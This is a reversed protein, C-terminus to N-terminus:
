NWWKKFSPHGLQQHWTMLTAETGDGKATATMAVGEPRRILEQHTPEGHEDVGTWMALRANPNMLM